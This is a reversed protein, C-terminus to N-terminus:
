IRTTRMRKEREEFLSFLNMHANVPASQAVRGRNGTNLVSKTTALAMMRAADAPNSCNHVIAGNALSFHAADPVTLCWVDQTEDLKRVHTISLVKATTAATNISTGTRAFFQALLRVARGVLGIRESGSLGHKVVSQRDSIGCGALRRGTGSQLRLGPTSASTSGGVGKLIEGLRSWISSRQSASLTRSSIIPQTPTGITSTAVQPSLGSLLSGCTGICSSLLRSIPHKVADVTFNGMLFSRSRTLSSLITTNPALSEASIWGSETLFTHDPTCRVSYGGAFVVEALSANRRTVRPNTYQKWGCLTLVEGQEPLNMIQCAGYRTLVETDGTFCWDHKPAARFMQAKKDWERQYTKLASVGVRVDPNATNFYWNPLSKRVAQIGDQVSLSPVIEVRMGASMFQERVSKGTQFSKNKADHTLYATGYAYPKDLQYKLV